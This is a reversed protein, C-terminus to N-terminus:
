TEMTAFSASFNAELATRLLVGGGEVAKSRGEVHIITGSRRETYVGVRSGV